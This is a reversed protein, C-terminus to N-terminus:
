PPVGGDDEPEGGHALRIDLLEARRRCAELAELGHRDVGGDLGILQALRACAAIQAELEPPRAGEKTVVALPTRPHSRALRIVQALKRAEAAHRSSDPVADFDALVQDFAKAEAREGKALLADYSARGHSFREAAEDRCSWITLSLLLAPLLTRRVATFM